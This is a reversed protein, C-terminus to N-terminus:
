SLGRCTVHEHRFLTYGTWGYPLHTSRRGERWDCIVTKKQGVAAWAITLRWQSWTEEWLQDGTFTMSRADPTRTNEFSWGRGKRM